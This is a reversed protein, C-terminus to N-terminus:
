KPVCPRYDTTEQRLLRALQQAQHHPLLGLRTPRRTLPHQIALGRQRQWAAIVRRRAADTLFVGGTKADRTFDEAVIQGRNVLALALRDVLFPPSEEMLDLALSPRGPREEHLFGLGPELGAAHCAAVCENVLVAYLYSLLSNFPDRPPRRSRGNPALRERLRLSVAHPLVSFYDRAAIGEHGRLSNLDTALDLAVFSRALSDAACGLVHADIEDKARRAFRLLLSRANHAKGRVSARALPLRRETDDAWRFQVRRAALGGGGAPDFRGLFWGSGSLYSISIGRASALGVAGHTATV